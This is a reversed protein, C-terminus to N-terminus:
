TLDNKEVKFDYIQNPTTVDVGDKEPTQTKLKINYVIVHIDSKEVEYNKDIITTYKYSVTDNKSNYVLNSPIVKGTDTTNVENETNEANEVKEEKIYDFKNWRLDSGYFKNAMNKLIDEPVNETNKMIIKKNGDYVFYSFSEDTILLKDNNKFQFSISQEEDSLNLEEVTFAVNEFDASQQFSKKIWDLKVTPVEEVKNEAVVVKQEKKVEKDHLYAFMFVIIFVIVLVVFVLFSKNKKIYDLFDM